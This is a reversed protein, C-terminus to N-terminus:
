ASIEVKNEGIFEPMKAYAVFSNKQILYYIVSFLIIPIMLIGAQVFFAFGPLHLKNLGVPYLLNLTVPSLLQAITETVAIVSCLAGEDHKEVMKSAISRICPPAAVALLAPICSIFMAATTKALGVIVNSLIFCVCGIIVILTEAFCKTLVKFAFVIGIGALATKTALYYGIMEPGWCLPYHKAFLVTIGGFYDFVAFLFSIFLLVLCVNIHRGRKALIFDKIRKANTLCSFKNFSQKEKLSEQLFFTVYFCALLLLITSAWLPPIYGLFILDAILMGRKRELLFVTFKIANRLTTSSVM